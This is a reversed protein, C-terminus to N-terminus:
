SFLIGGELLGDMETIAGGLVFGVDKLIDTTRLPEGMLWERRGDFGRKRGLFCNRRDKLMNSFGPSIMVWFFSGVHV